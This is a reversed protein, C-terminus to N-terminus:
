SMYTHILRSFSHPVFFRDFSQVVRESANSVPSHKPAYVLYPPSRSDAPVHDIHHRMFIMILGYSCCNKKLLFSRFRRSTSNPEAGLLIGLGPSWALFINQSTKVELDSFEDVFRWVFRAATKKVGHDIDNTGRFKRQHSYFISVMLLLMCWLCTKNAIFDTKPFGDPWSQWQGTNSPTESVAARAPSKRPAKPSAPPVNLVHFTPSGSTIKKKWAVLTPM